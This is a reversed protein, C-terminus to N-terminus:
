RGHKGFGHRRLFADGAADLSDGEDESKPTRRFRGQKPPGKPEQRSGNCRACVVKSEAFVNERDTKNKSGRGDCGTCAEAM